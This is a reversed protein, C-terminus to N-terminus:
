VIVNFSDIQVECLAKPNVRKCDQNMAPGDPRSRVAEKCLFILYTAQDNLRSEGRDHTDGKVQSPCQGEVFEGVYVADALNVCGSEDNMAPSVLDHREPIGLGHILSRTYFVRWEINIASAVIIDLLEGKIVVLSNFIENGENVGVPSLSVSLEM